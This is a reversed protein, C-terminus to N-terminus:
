KTWRNGIGVNGKFLDFVIHQPPTDLDEFISPSKWKNRCVVYWINHHSLSLLTHSFIVTM